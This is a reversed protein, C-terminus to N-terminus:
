PFDLTQHNGYFLHESKQSQSYLFQNYINIAYTIKYSNTDRSHESGCMQMNVYNGTRTIKQQLVSITKLIKM